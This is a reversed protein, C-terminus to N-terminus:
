ENEDFELKLQASEEPVRRARIQRLAMGVLSRAADGAAEMYAPDRQLLTVAFAGDLLLLVQQALPEAPGIGATAFTAAMWAEFKKKHAAGIKLAPHGPMAVLEVSTRLFGCGQWRPHRAAHALHLFIAKTKDALSGDAAEFWRQFLVLNPQDRATLYAEILEDKSTFHYYLTRKTVGAKEAVADVSVRGIGEAYFLKEAAAIIKGRTSSQSIAM